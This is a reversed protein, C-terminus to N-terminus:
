NWSKVKLYYKIKIEYWEKTMKIGAYIKQPIYEAMWFNPIPLIKVNQLILDEKSMLAVHAQYYM